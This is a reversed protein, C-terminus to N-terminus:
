PQSNGFVWAVSGKQAEAQIKLQGSAKSVFVQLPVQFVAHGLSSEDQTWRGPSESKPILAGKMGEVGGEMWGDMWEDKRGGEREGERGGKRRDMARGGVWGDM